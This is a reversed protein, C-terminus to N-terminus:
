VRRGCTRARLDKIRALAARLDGRDSIVLCPSLDKPCGTPTFPEPVEVASAPHVRSVRGAGRPVGVGQGVWWDDFLGVGNGDGNM